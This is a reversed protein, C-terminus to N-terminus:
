CNPNLLLRLGSRFSDSVISCFKKFGGIPDNVSIEDGWIALSGAELMSSLYISRDFLLAVLITLSVPFLFFPPEITAPDPDDLKTPRLPLKAGLVSCFKAGLPRLTTIVGLDAIPRM